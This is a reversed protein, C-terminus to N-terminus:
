KLLSGFLGGEDDDDRGKFRGMSDRAMDFDAPRGDDETFEGTEPDRRRSRRRRGGGFLGGGGGGGFLGGGSDGGDRDRGSDNNYLDNLEDSVSGDGGGGFLGGSMSMGSDDDRDTMGDNMSGGGFFGGGMSMGGGMGGRGRDADRSYLDATEELQRKGAAKSRAVKGTRGSKGKETVVYEGDGRKKLALETGDDATTTKITRM